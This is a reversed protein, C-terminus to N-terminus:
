RKQQVCQRIGAIAQDFPILTTAEAQCIFCGKNVSQKFTGNDKNIKIAEDIDNTSEAIKKRLCSDCLNMGGDKKLAILSKFLSGKHKVKKLNGLLKM